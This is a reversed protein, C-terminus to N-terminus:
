KQSNQLFQELPIKISSNLPNIVLVRFVPNEPDVRQFSEILELKSNKLQSEELFLNMSRNLHPIKLDIIQESKGRFTFNQESVAYLSDQEIGFISPNNSSNNSLNAMREIPGSKVLRNRHLNILIENSKLAESGLIAECNDNVIYFRSKGWKETKVHFDCEVYGLIEVSGGGYNKAFIDPAHIKVNDPIFSKPLLNLQSGSDVLM